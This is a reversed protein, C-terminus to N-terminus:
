SFYDCKFNELKRYMFNIIDVKSIAANLKIAQKYRGHHDIAMAANITARNSPWFGNDAKKAPNTARNTKHPNSALKM